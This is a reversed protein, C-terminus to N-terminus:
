KKQWPNLAQSILVLLFPCGSIKGATTGESEVHNVFDECFRCDAFCDLSTDMPVRQNTYHLDPPSKSLEYIALWNELRSRDGPGIWARTSSDCQWARVRGLSNEDHSNSEPELYLWKTTGLDETDAQRQQRKKMKHKWPWSKWLYKDLKQEKQVVKCCIIPKKKIGSIQERRGDWREETLLVWFLVWPNLFCVCLLLSGIHFNLGPVLIAQKQVMPPISHRPLAFIIQASCHPSTGHPRSCDSCNTWLDRRLGMGQSVPRSKRMLSAPGKSRLWHQATHDHTQPM